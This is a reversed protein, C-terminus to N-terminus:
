VFAPPYRQPVMFFSVLMAELARYLVPFSNVRFVFSPSLFPLPELSPLPVAYVDASSSIDLISLGGGDVFM